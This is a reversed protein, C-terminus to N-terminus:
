PENVTAHDALREASPLLGSADVSGLTEGSSSLFIVRTLSQDNPVKVVFLGVTPIDDLAVVDGPIVTGDAQVVQMSAVNSGAAGNIYSVEEGPFTSAGLMLPAADDHPRCAAGAERDDIVLDLCFSGGPSGDLRVSVEADLEPLDVVAADVNQLAVGRPFLPLLASDSSSSDSEDVAAPDREEDHQLVIVTASVVLLAAAACAVLAKMRTRGPTAATSAIYEGDSDGEAISRDLDQRYLGLRDEVTTPM